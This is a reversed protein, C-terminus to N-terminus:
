LELEEEVRKKLVKKEYREECPMHNQRAIEIANDLKYQCECNIGSQYIQNTFAGVFEAIVHRDDTSPCIREVSYNDCMRNLASCAAIAREHASRRRSDTQERRFVFQERSLKGGDLLKRDIEARLVDNYVCAFYNIFADCKDYVFDVLFDIDEKDTEVENIKKILEGIKKVM